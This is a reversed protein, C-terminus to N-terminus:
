SAVISNGLQLTKKMVCSTFVLRPFQAPFTHALLYILENFYEKEGILSVIEKYSFGLPYPFNEIAELGKQELEVRKELYSYTKVLEEMEYAIRGFFDPYKSIELSQTGFLPALMRTASALNKSSNEDRTEHTTSKGFVEDFRATPPTLKESKSFLGKVAERIGITLLFLKTNVNELRLVTSTIHENEIPTIRSMFESILLSPTYMANTKKTSFEIIQEESSQFQESKINAKIKEWSYLFYDDYNALYQFLLPVLEINFTHKIDEYIQRTKDSADSEPIPKLHIM